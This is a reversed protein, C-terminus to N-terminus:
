TKSMLLMVKSFSMSTLRWSLLWLVSIEVNVDVVIAGDVDAEEEDLDNSDVVLVDSGDENNVNDDKIHRVEKDGVKVNEDVLDDKGQEGEDLMKLIVVVVEVEADVDIQCCEALM